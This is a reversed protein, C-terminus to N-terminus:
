QQGYTNALCIGGGILAAGILLAPNPRRAVMGTLTGALIAGFVANRTQQSTVEFGSVWNAFHECNRTIPCYKWIGVQSRASAIIKNARLAPQNPTLQTPRGRVVDDYPEEEVTGTRATASILQWKGERCKGDTVISFHWYSGFNTMILDGPKLATQANM